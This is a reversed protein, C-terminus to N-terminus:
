AGELAERLAPDSAKALKVDEIGKLTIPCRAELIESRYSPRSQLRQWYNALAPRRGDGWFHRGWDVEVLRDLIVVWSVDALTFRDGAIWPGGHKELQEGLSDLHHEMHRRSSRLIKMVPPLKPLGRVGFTKLKTFILPREKNPHTLLGKGVRNGARPTTEVAARRNLERQSGRAIIRPNHEDAGIQVGM